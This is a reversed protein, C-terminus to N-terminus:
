TMPCLLRRAADCSPSTRFWYGPQNVSEWSHRFAHVIVILAVIVLSLISARLAAALWRNKM